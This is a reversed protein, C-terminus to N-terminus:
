RGTAPPPAHLLGYFQIRWALAPSSRHLTREHNAHRPRMCAHAGTTSPRALRAHWSRGDDVPTGTTTTIVHWAHWLAVLPRLRSDRCVSAIYLMARHHGLCTTDATSARSFRGICTAQVDEDGRRALVRMGCVQFRARM